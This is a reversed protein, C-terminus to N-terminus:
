ELDGGNVLDYIDGHIGPLSEGVEDPLEKLNQVARVIETRPRERTKHSHEPDHARTIQKM